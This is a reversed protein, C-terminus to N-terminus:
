RSFVVKVDKSFKKFARQGNSFASLDFNYFNVRVINGKKDYDIVINRQIDSDVSKAKEVEVSLVKSEKDYSIKPSVM